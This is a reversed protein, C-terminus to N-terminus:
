SFISANVHRESENSIARSGKSREVTLQEEAAAHENDKAPRARYEKGAKRCRDDPEFGVM